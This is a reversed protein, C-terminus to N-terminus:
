HLDTYMDQVSLLSSGGLPQGVRQRKPVFHCTKQLSQVASDQIIQDIVVKERRKANKIDQPVDPIFFSVLFMFIFVVHEFVVLLWLRGEDGYEERIQHGFDSTFAILFGNSIVAVVTIFVMVHQWSGIGHAIQAVPRRTKWVLRKADM